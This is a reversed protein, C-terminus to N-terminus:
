ACMFACLEKWRKPTTGLRQNIQPVASLKSVLSLKKKKFPDSTLCTTFWHSYYTVTNNWSRIMSIIEHWIKVDFTASKYIYHPNLTFYKRKYQLPTYINCQTAPFRFVWTIFYSFNTSWYLLNVIKKGGSNALLNEPILDRQLQRCFRM